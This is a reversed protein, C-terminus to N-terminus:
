YRLIEFKKEDKAEFQYILQLCGCKCFFVKVTSISSASQCLVLNLRHAACHFFYAFPYDQRLLQQIGSIHGSMVSAGDYTQMILKGKLPEGYKGLIQKVVATLASASRDSSVNFFKLFREVVEGNRDLRVIASWQEKTSIDTTEDVQISPFNCEAIDKEIQDQIVSDICEILDNQIDASVGSFAGGGVSGRESDDM